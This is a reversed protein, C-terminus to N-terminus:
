TQAGATDLIGPLAHVFGDLQAETIILPPALRIVDRAAANVLYGADRAAAEATKAQQATLVIGLLLGRGRVHDVLPHGLSEIGQRLTKGLVDARRVLGETALTRLVALAAATCM